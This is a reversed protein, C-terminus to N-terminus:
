AAPIFSIEEWTFKKGVQNYSVSILISTIEITAPESLTYGDKDLNAQELINFDKDYPYLLNDEPPVDSDPKGNELIGLEIEHEEGNVTFYIHMNSVANNDSSGKLSLVPTKALDVTIPTEFTWQYSPYAEAGQLQEGAGPGISISVGSETM